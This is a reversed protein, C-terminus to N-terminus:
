LQTRVTQLYGIAIVIGGIGLIVVVIRELLVAQLTVALGLLTLGLVGIGIFGVALAVQIATTGATRATGM